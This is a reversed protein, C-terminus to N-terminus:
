SNITIYKSIISEKGGKLTVSDTIRQATEIVESPTVTLSKM